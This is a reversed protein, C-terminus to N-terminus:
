QMYSDEKMTDDDSLFNEVTRPSFQSSYTTLVVMTTSFTFTTMTILSGAIVGLINKSLDVSTLFFEPVIGPLNLFSGSDAMGVLVAGVLSIFSIISPYIWVSKRFKLLIRQLM